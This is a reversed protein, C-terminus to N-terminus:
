ERPVDLEAPNLGKAKVYGSLRRMQNDMSLIEINLLDVQKQLTESKREWHDRQDKMREARGTALAAEHLVERLESIVSLDSAMDISRIQAETKAIESPSQRGKLWAALCTGASAVVATVALYVLNIWSHSMENSSDAM